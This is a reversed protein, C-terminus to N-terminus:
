LRPGRPQGAINGKSWRDQRLFPHLAGINHEGPSQPTISQTLPLSDNGSPIKTTKHRGNPARKQDRNERQNLRCSFGPFLETFPRAPGTAIRIIRKGNLCPRVPYRRGLPLLHQKVLLHLCIHPCKNPYDDRSNLYLLHVM